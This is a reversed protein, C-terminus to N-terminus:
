QNLKADGNQVDAFPQPMFVNFRSKLDIGVQIRVLIHLNNTSM